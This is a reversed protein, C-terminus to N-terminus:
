RARTPKQLRRSRTLGYLIMVAALAYGIAKWEALELSTIILLLAVCTILPIWPGGPLVFPTGAERKDTKQLRWAAACCGLYVIAM